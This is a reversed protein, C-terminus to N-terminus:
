PDKREGCSCFELTRKRFIHHGYKPEFELRVIQVECSEEYRCDECRVVEVRKELQERLRPVIEDQYKELMFLTQQYLQKYNEAMTKGEESQASSEKTRRVCTFSAAGM